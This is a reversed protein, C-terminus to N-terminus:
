CKEVGAVDWGVKLGAGSEPGCEANELSGGCWERLLGLTRGSSRFRAVIGCGVGCGIGFGVGVM